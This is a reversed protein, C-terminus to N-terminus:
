FEKQKDYQWLNPKESFLSQSLPVPYKSLLARLILVQSFPLLPLVELQIVPEMDVKTSGVPLEPALSARWQQRMHIGCHGVRQVWVDQSTLRESLTHGQILCSQGSSAIEQLDGGCSVNIKWYCAWCRSLLSRRWPHVPCFRWWM